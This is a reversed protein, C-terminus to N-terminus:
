IDAGTGFSINGTSIRIHIWLCTSFDWLIFIFIWWIGQCSLRRNRILLLICMLLSFVYSCHLKQLFPMHRQFIEPNDVM